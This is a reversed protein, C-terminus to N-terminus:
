NNEGIQMVWTFLDNGISVFTWPHHLFVYKTDETTEPINNPNGRTILVLTKGATDFDKLKGQEGFKLLQERRTLLDALEELSEAIMPKYSSAAFGDLTAVDIKIALHDATELAKFDQWLQELMMLNAARQSWLANGSKDDMANLRDRWETEGADLNFAVRLAEERPFKDYDEDSYIEFHKIEYGVWIKEFVKGQIEDKNSVVFEAFKQVNNQHNQLNALQAQTVPQRSSGSSSYKDDGPYENFGYMEMQDKEIVEQISALHGRIAGNVKSGIARHTKADRDQHSIGIGLSKQIIPVAVTPWNRYHAWSERSLREMEAYINQHRRIEELSMGALMEDDYQPCNWNGSIKECPIQLMLEEMEQEYAVLKPELDPLAAKVYNHKFEVDKIAAKLKPLFNEADRQDSSKFNNGKGAWVGEGDQKRRPTEIFSEATGALQKMDVIQQASEPYMNMPCNGFNDSAEPIEPNQMGCKVLVVELERLYASRLNKYAQTEGEVVDDDDSSDDDDPGDDAVPGGGAPTTTDDCGVTFVLGLTMLLILLHKM